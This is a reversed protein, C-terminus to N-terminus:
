YIKKIQSHPTITEPLKNIQQSLEKLEEIPVGTQKHKGYKLATVIEEQWRGRWDEQKFKHTKSKEFAAEMFDNIKKVSEDAEKITIVGENILKAKYLESVPKLSAIKKYMKPQTFMPQDLENHGFKRYGVLDIVVDKNFRNRYEVAIRCVREVAEPDNANVHFIPAGVTKAVETPHLATRAELPTTTFGIQNNVVIHITGGVRYGHLDEMQMTEYVVGQGAFAADGHVLICLTKQFNVEKTDKRRDDFEARTRGLAVPNVCELHSPNPLLTVEMGYAQRTTGLHYKVDGSNGWDASSEAVTGQFEALLQEMPKRLVNVLVNLRGRHPMGMFVSETGLTSARQMIAKLGPIFTECGDLGFRKSTFKQHLFTEFKTAWLLRDLVQKKMEPDLKPQVVEFQDRIWNCESRDTIHM